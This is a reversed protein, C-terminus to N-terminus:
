YGSLMKAHYRAETQERRIRMLDIFAELRTEVGARGTQEDITISLIPINFDRSIRPMISKAVIEPICTFPALQVVGDFGSKAYIIAEGVSSQGHGGIFKNLYPLAALNVDEVRHELVDTIAYQTLYISRHTIVGLEGLTKEVELNIFPELMVYIEGVIGVRLPVRDRCQPVSELLNRCEEDATSLEKYSRAKDVIRLCKHFARTTEGRKLEYPRIHASKQELKDLIKLKIWARRVVDVFAPWSIGAFKVVKRLKTFFPWLGTMPPDFVIIQFNYGLNRLIKYHLNGYLGARCPGVGGSTIILEAGKELVELYTGLVMKFPICAFEPAYQVGKDLTLSTPSPPIVAEFGMDEVLQKFGIYSYGMHAFSLKKM